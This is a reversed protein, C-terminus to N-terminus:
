SFAIAEMKGKCFNVGSLFSLTFTEFSNNTKNYPFFALKPPNLPAHSFLENHLIGFRSLIPLAAFHNHHTHEPIAVKGTNNITHVPQVSDASHKDDDSHKDRETEITQPTQPTTISIDPPRVEESKAVETAYKDAM